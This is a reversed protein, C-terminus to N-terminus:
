RQGRRRGTRGARERVHAVARTAQDQDLIALAGQLQHLLPDAQELSAIRAPDAHFEEVLKEVARLGSRIEGALVAVTQGQELERALEGHLYPQGARREGQALALLRQGVREAHQGFDEPLQRLQDLGHEVFLMAQAM